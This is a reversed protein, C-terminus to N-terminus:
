ANGPSDLRAAFLRSRRARIERAGRGCGHKGGAAKLRGNELHIYHIYTYVISYIVDYIHYTTIYLIHSAYYM